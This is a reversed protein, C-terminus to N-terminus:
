EDKSLLTLIYPHLEDSTQVNQCIQCCSQRIGIREECYM